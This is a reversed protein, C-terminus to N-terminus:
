ISPHCYAKSIINYCFFLKIRVNIFSLLESKSSGNMVATSFQPDKSLSIKNDSGFGTGIQSCNRKQM